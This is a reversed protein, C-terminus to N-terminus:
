VVFCAASPSCMVLHPMSGCPTRGDFAVSVEAGFDILLAAIDVFTDGRLSALFLPTVDSRTNPDAGYDLLCEVVHINGCSVAVCLPAREERGKADVMAGNQVLLQLTLLDAIRAANSGQPASLHLPTDFWEDCANVNAGFRVILLTAVDICGFTAALHLPTQELKSVADVTARNTVLLEAIDAYDSRAAGHLPTMQRDDCANVDAGRRILLDVVVLHGSSAALHLLTGITPKMWKKRGGIQPLVIRLNVDVGEDLLHEVGAANGAAAHERITLGDFRRDDSTSSEHTTNKQPPM